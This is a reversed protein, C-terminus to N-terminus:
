QSHFCNYNRFFHIIIIIQFKCLPVLNDPQSRWQVCTWRVFGEADAVFKPLSGALYTVSGRVMSPRHAAPM